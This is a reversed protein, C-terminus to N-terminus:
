EGTFAERAPRACTGKSRQLHNVDHVHHFHNCRVRLQQEFEIRTTYMAHKWVVRKVCVLHVSPADHGVASCCPEADRLLYHNHDRRECVGKELRWTNEHLQPPLVAWTGRSVVTWLCQIPVCSSAVLVSFRASPVVTSKCSCNPSLTVTVCDNTSRSPSGRGSRVVASSSAFGHTRPRECAANQRVLPM